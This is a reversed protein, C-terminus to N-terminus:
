STIPGRGHRFGARFRHGGFLLNGHAIQNIVSQIEHPMLKLNSTIPNFTKGMGKASGDQGGRRFWFLLRWCRFLNMLKFHAEM